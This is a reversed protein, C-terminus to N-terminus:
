QHTFELFNNMDKRIILKKASRTNFKVTETHIVFVNASDLLEFYILESNNGCGMLTSWMGKTSFEGGDKASFGGGFYNCAKGHFTSDSDFTLTFNLYTRDNDNSVRDSKMYVLEWEHNMIDSVLNVTDNSDVVNSDTCQILFIAACFITSKSIFTM